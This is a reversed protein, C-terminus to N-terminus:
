ARLGLPCLALWMTACATAWNRGCGRRRGAAPRKVGRLPLNPHTSSVQSGFGMLPRFAVIGHPEVLQSNLPYKLPGLPQFLRKTKLAM